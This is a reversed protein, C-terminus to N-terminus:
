ARDRMLLAPKNNSGNPHDQAKDIPSPRRCPLRDIARPLNSAALRAVTQDCELIL